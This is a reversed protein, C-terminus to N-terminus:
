CQQAQGTDKVAFRFVVGFNTKCLDMGERGLRRAKKFM